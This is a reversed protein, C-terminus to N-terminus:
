CYTQHKHVYTFSLVNFQFDIYYHLYKSKLWQVTPPPNGEVQCSLALKDNELVTTSEPLNKHLKLETLLLASFLYCLPLIVVFLSFFLVRFWCSFLLNCSIKDKVFDSICLKLCINYFRCIMLTTVPLIVDIVSISVLPMTSFTLVLSLINLVLPCSPFWIDKWLRLTCYILRAESWKSFRLIYRCGRLQIDYLISQSCTLDNGVSVSSLPPPFFFFSWGRYKRVVNFVKPEDQGEHECTYEGIDDVKASVIYLTTNKFVKTNEDEVVQKGDKSRPFLFILFEIAVNSRLKM